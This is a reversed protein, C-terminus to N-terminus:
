STNAFIKVKINKNKKHLQQRAKNDFPGMDERTFYLINQKTQTTDSAM